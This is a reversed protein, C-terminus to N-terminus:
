FSYRFAQPCSTFLSAHMRAHEEDDNSDRHADDEDGNGHHCADDDSDSDSSDDDDGKPRMVSKSQKWINLMRLNDYGSDVLKKWEPSSIINQYQSIEAPTLQKSLRAELEERSPPNDYLSPTRRKSKRSPKKAIGNNNRPPSHSPTHQSSSSTHRALLPLHLIISIHSPTPCLM